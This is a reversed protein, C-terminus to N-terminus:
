DGSNEHPVEKPIVHEGQEIRAIIDNFWTLNAQTVYIGYELTLLWFFSDRSPTGIPGDGARAPHNVLRAHEEAIQAAMRRLMALIDEDGLQGAFFIQVLEAHHEGKEPLPTTLWRRLERRGSETIHYVKRDPRVDQEVM